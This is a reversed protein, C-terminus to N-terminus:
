AEPHQLSQGESDLPRWELKEEEEETPWLAKLAADIETNLTQFPTLLAKKDIGALLGGLLKEFPQHVEDIKVQDDSEPLVEEISPHAYKMAEVLHQRLAEVNLNTKGCVWPGMELTFAYYGPAPVGERLGMPTFGVPTITFVVSDKSYVVGATSEDQVWGENELWERFEPLSYLTEPEPEAPAYVFHGNRMFSAYGYKDWFEERTKERLWYGVDEQVISRQRGDILSIRRRLERKFDLSTIDRNEEAWEQLLADAQLTTLKDWGLERCM